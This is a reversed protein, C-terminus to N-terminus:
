QKSSVTMVTNVWRCTWEWKEKPMPAELGSARTSRSEAAPESGKGAGVAVPDVARYLELLGGFRGPQPGDQAGHQLPFVLFDDGQCHIVGAPRREAPRYGRYM